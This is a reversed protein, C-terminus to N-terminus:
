GSVGIYGVGCDAGCPQQSLIVKREIRRIVREKHNSKRVGIM